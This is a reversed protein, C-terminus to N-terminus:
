GKAKRATREAQDFVISSINDVPVEILEGISEGTKSMIEVRYSGQRPIRSESADPSLAGGQKAVVLQHTQGDKTKITVRDRIAM